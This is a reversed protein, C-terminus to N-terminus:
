KGYPKDRTELKHLGERGKHSAALPLTDGEGWGEGMSPSPTPKMTPSRSGELANLIAQQVPEIEKLVQNNWFRLVHFGQSELWETRTNDYEAENPLSHHGGDVEIILKREFCVFDVIFPGIPQQRRFKFGDLRYARLHNWLIREADTQNQRLLKANKTSLEVM